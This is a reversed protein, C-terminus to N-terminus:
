GSNGVSIKPPGRAPNQKFAGSFSFDFPTDWVWTRTEDDFVAFVGCNGCKRGGNLGAGCKPCTEPPTGRLRELERREDAKIQEALWEPYEERVNEWSFAAAFLKRQEERPKGGYTDRIKGAVFEIVSHNGTIWDPDPICSAIKRVVSDDYLYGAEKAKNKIIKFFNPPPKQPFKECGAGKEPRESIGGGINYKFDSDSDSDSDGKLKLQGKIPKGKLKLQGKVTEAEGKVGPLKLDTLPESSPGNGPYNQCVKDKQGKVSDECEKMYEELLKAESESWLTPKGNEIKGEFLDNGLKLAYVRSIGLRESLELTTIVSSEVIEELDAQFEKYCDFDFFDKNELIFKKIEIPLSILVARVAFRIKERETVKQHKIWKPIIVHGRFHFAKGDGAFKTMIREAEERELGIELRINKLTCQYVGAANTRENTLLYFYVLKERESLSDFWDDSWISTSIYRQKTQINM